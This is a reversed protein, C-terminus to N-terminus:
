DRKALNEKVARADFANPDNEPKAGKFMVIDALQTYDGGGGGTGVGVGGGVGGGGGFSFGGLGVSFASSRPERGTSQGTLVFYDYGQDLTLEAARLLVYDQTKQRPTSSNATFVIRYRNPELKQESYGEGGKLPQYPTATACGALALAALVACTSRARNM